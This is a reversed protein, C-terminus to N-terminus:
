LQCEIVDDLTQICCIFTPYEWPPREGGYTDLGERGGAVTPTIMKEYRKRSPSKKKPPAWVPRKGQMFAVADANYKFGKYIAGPHGDVQERCEDWSGYVGTRRGCKVAYYNNKKRGM